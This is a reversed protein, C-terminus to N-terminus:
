EAASRLSAMYAVSARSAKAEKLYRLARRICRLFNATDGAVRYCHATHRAMFAGEILAEDWTKRPASM